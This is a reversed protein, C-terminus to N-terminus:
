SDAIEDDEGEVTFLMCRLVISVRENGKNLVLDGGFIKLMSKYLMYNYDSENIRGLVRTSANLIYDVTVKNEERSTVTSIMKITGVTDEEIYDQIICQLIPKIHTGRGQYLEKSNEDIGKEINIKFDDKKLGLKLENIIRGTEFYIENKKIENLYNDCFRKYLDLYDLHMNTTLAGDQVQKKLMNIVVQQFIRVLDYGSEKASAKSKMRHFMKKYAENKSELTARKLNAEKRYISYDVAENLVPLLETYIDFPKSIYKFINTQNITAILQPLQAYGSVIIKVIDKDYEDVKKLLELGNMEPMKMDSVIVDVEVKKIIRLAEMGSTCFYSDFDARRIGRKISNLIMKEDDVFLVCGM